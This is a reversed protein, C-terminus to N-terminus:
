KACREIARQAARAFRRRASISDKSSIGDFQLYLQLGGYHFTEGLQKAFAGDNAISAM